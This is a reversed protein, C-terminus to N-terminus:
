RDKTTFSIRPDVTAMLVDGMIFAVVSLVAYFLVVGVIVSNDYKGLAEVLMGGTGPVSYVRETILAGVLAFLIIGPIGQIIPIAANKLIHKSYIESETLGESRAFKVYDMNMQDIIFRRLWRMVNGISQLSLSIIPLIYMLASAKELDFTTPLGLNGGIARVLFIYALSPVSIIVVIYITGLKDALKDKKRAMLLATPVAIAYTLIASLVGNVFSFGMKSKQNKVTTTNTYDDSFREVNIKSSERSGALYTATHLDDAAKETLGTPYTITSKVYAGQRAVMTEAVDIGENVSYSKGLSIKILNQHMYPFSSDFYLLYKNRTGNGMIAPSFKKGGYVPDHLTFSLGRKGVDGKAVHINDITILNSFYKGLRTILPIDRYAFLAAQGGDAIKRGNITVADLRKITYGKKTYYETYKEIYESTMESDLDATKGLAVAKSRTDEDIEGKDTLEQLYDAYTVYHLYGYQEWKNYMYTVKKNNGLHSYNPDAAFIMKRDMLGYILIMVIAVVIAVSCLGHIIRRIVYKTMIAWENFVVPSRASLESKQRIM